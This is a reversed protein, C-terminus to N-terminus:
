CKEDKKLQKLLRAVGETVLKPEPAFTIRMFGACSPGFAEGPVVIVEGNRALSFALEVTNVKFTRLDAFLYFAGEPEAFKVRPEAAFAQVAADARTKYLACIEKTYGTKRLDLCAKAAEQSPTPATTAIAQHIANLRPMVAEPGQLWGVRLGTCAYSKSIADITLVNKGLRFLPEHHTVFAIDRYLCDDIVWIDRKELEHVLRQLATNTGAFRGTPNSPSTIIVVRTKDTVLGLLRDVDIAFGDGVSLPYPVHVAGILGAINKYAPYGPEPALIEDGPDTIGTLATYMAEESGITVIVSEMPANDFLEEAIRRRLRSDGANPTYAAKNLRAAEGLAEMVSPHPDIAPQGLGLNIAGPAAADFVQRILTKEMAAARKAVTLPM